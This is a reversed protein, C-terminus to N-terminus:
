LTSGVAGDADAHSAGLVVREVRGIGGRQSEDLRKGVLQSGGLDLHGEAVFGRALNGDVEARTGVLGTQLLEHRQQGMQLTDIGVHSDVTGDDQGRLYASVAALGDTRASLGLGLCEGRDAGAVLYLYLPSGAHCLTALDLAILGYAGAIQGGHREGVLAGGFVEHGVVYLHGEVARGYICIYILHVHLGDDRTALEREAHGVVVRQSVKRRDVKGPGVHTCADLAIGDVQNAGVDGVVLYDFTGGAGGDRELHCLTGRILPVDGGM